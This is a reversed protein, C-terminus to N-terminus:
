LRVAKDSRPRKNEALLATMIQVHKMALYSGDGLHRLSEFESEREILALVLARQQGPRKTKFIRRLIDDRRYSKGGIRAAELLIQPRRMGALLDTHHTM